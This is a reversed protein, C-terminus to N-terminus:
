SVEKIPHLYINTILDAHVSTIQDRRPRGNATLLGNAVSFPEDPQRWAGLKAYDPLGANVRAIVATIAASTVASSTPQLLVSLYPRGEGVVVAQAIEPAYLIEREIWEPSINRGFSTILINKLRGIVHLYGDEDLYGRDGTAIEHIAPISNDSSDGLYGLMTAGSVHIEGQDDIRVKAHPLSQGATGLKQAGPRNLTVVSACESLGYGEFIPLGVLEAQELLQTSVSAGGIAIFRLSRPASWGRHIASVLIRLLEPVLILSEPQHRDICSLLAPIDVSGYGIGTEVQTPVISTAGLLPAVGTTAINDLLTALPLLCLHRTAALPGVVDALSHTVQELSWRGLCVGKAQGTSGSTYTIKCTDVPLRPHSTLKEKREFFYLGSTPSQTRVLWEPHERTLRAPDDTLLVDVGADSLVHRLQRTTFYRPIPVNLQGSAGLALDALVWPIGNDALVAFRTELPAHSRLWSQEIVVQTTLAQPGLTRRGDTLTMQSM